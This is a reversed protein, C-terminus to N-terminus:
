MGGPLRSSPGRPGRRNYAALGVIPVVILASAVLVARWDGTVASVWFGLALLFVSYFIGFRVIIRASTDVPPTAM